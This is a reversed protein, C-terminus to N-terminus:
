HSTAFYALMAMSNFRYKPHPALLWDALSNIDEWEGEKLELHVAAAGCIHHNYHMAVAMPLVLNPHTCTARGKKIKPHLIDGGFSAIHCKFCAGGKPPYYVMAELQRFISHPDRDGDSM